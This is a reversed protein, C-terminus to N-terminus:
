ESALELVARAYSLRNSTYQTFAPVQTRNGPGRTYKMNQENVHELTAGREFSWWVGLVKAQWAGQLGLGFALMHLRGYANTLCEACLRWFTLFAQFEQAM